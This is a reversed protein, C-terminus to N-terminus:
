YLLDLKQQEEVKIEGSRTVTNNTHHNNKEGWLLAVLEVPNDRFTNGSIDVNIIGGTKLLTGTSEKAGCTTFKSNWVSLIGGITSEDYGGRYFNIVDRQVNIFDCQEITVMEANYDGKDDAALVIGNECNRITTNKFSITDAFSGKSAKLVYGFDEIICNITFLNYASSMNVDLPAFALQNNESKISLNELKIIGKPNM